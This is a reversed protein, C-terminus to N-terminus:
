QHNYKIFASSIMEKIFQGKEGAFDYDDLEDRSIWAQAQHEDSISIDAQDTERFEVAWGCIITYIQRDAEFYSSFYVLHDLNFLKPDVTLHSEEKVERAIDLQHLNAASEQMKAPWEANGGPLDWANPRSSADSARKLILAQPQGSASNIIVVKHLFKVRDTLQQKM